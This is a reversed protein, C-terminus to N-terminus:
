DPTLFLHETMYTELYQRKWHKEQCPEKPHWRPLLVLFTLIFSIFFLLIHFYMKSIKQCRHYKPIKDNKVNQCKKIIKLSQVNKESIINMIYVGPSYESMSWEFYSQDYYNNIIKTKILEGDITYFEINLNKYINGTYM